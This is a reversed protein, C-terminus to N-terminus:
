DIQPDFEFVLKETVEDGSVQNAQEEKMLIEALPRRQIQDSHVELHDHLLDLLKSYANHPVYADNEWESVTQQRCGLRRAM